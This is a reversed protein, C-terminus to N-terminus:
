ALAELGRAGRRWLRWRHAARLTWRRENALLVLSDIRGHRLALVAPCLVRRDLEALAASLSGTSRSQLLPALELVYLSRPAGAGAAMSGQAPAPGCQVGALRCLGTAYAERTFVNVPVPRAPAAATVPPEGGGWIWLTSVPREGRRVREGNLPHAHLWMEIEAGLRRLAGAGDGSPLADAVSSLLMRPPEVTRVPALPPTTLVFEGSALGTLEFGSGGFAEGFGEILRERQGAPLRLLGGWDAHVSTLGQLLHLPTAMWCTRGCPVTTGAAAVSAAPHHAYRALDLWRAIWGRWGEGLPASSAFRAVQEIGPCDCREAAPPGAPGPRKLEAPLHLDAIAIVLESM